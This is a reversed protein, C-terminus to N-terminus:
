DVLGQARATEREESTVTGDHNLDMRDFRALMGESFEIATIKDDNNRDLKWLRTNRRPLETGTLVDDADRDLTRFRRSIMSGYDLRSTVSPPTFNAAKADAAARKQDPSPGCGALALTGALVMVTVRNSM